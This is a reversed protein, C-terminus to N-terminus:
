IAEPSRGAQHLQGAHASQVAGAAYVAVQFLKLIASQDLSIFKHVSRHAQGLAAGLPGRLVARVDFPSRGM